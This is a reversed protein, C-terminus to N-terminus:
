KWKDIIEEVYKKDIADKDDFLASELIIALANNIARATCRELNEFVYQLAEESFPYYPNNNSISDNIRYENMLEQIYELAAEISLSELMYKTKIRDYLATDMFVTLDEITTYTGQTFNLFLTFKKPVSDFLLRLFDNFERREKSSYADISEFEDLWLFIRKCGVEIFMVFFAALVRGYDSNSEINRALKLDKLDKSTASLLFLRKYAHWLESKIESAEKTQMSSMQQNEETKTLEFYAMFINVLEVDELMYRLIEAMNGSYKKKFSIMLEPMIKDFDLKGLINLYFSKPANKGEPLNTVINITKEYNEKLIPVLFKRSTFCRATHTKGAGVEGFLLCINSTASRVDFVIRKSLKEKLDRFGAWVLDEDMYYPVTTFPDQKLNYKEYM